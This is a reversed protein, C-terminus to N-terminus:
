EFKYGVKYVTKIREGSKLKSRLQKIHTDVTRTDGEYDYGWVCDLLRDRSLTIKSNLILYCLLDFEKKTLDINEGCDTVTHNTRNIVINESVIDTTSGKGTRRLVAETRALLLTPSIPKSIYDDAGFTLGKIQDYEESKATLMIIPVLQEDDRLKKLVDFGNLKPMMVDLIILDISNINKYYVDIAEEGDYAKLVEYKRASYYDGLARVIKEEDDVLLISLKDNLM